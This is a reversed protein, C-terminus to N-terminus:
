KRMRQKIVKILNKFRTLNEKHSKLNEKLERNALDLRLIEEMRMIELNINDIQFEYATITKADLALQEQKKKEKIEPTEEVKTESTGINNQSTTIGM